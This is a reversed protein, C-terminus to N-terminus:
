QCLMLCCLYTTNSPMFTPPFATKPQCLLLVNHMAQDSVVAATGEGGTQTAHM